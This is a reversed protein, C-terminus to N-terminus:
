VQRLVYVNANLLSAHGIGLIDISDITDTPAACSSEFVGISVAM